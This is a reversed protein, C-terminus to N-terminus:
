CLISASSADQLLFILHCLLQWNLYPQGVSWIECCLRLVSSLQSLSIVSYPTDSHPWSIHLVFLSTWQFVSLVLPLLCFRFGTGCLLSMVKYHRWTTDQLQYWQWHLSFNYWWYKSVSGHRLQRWQMRFGKSRAIINRQSMVYPLARCNRWMSVACCIGERKVSIGWLTAAWSFWYM